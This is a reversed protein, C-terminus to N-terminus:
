GGTGAPIGAARLRGAWQRRALFVPPFVAALVLLGQLVQALYVPVGTSLLYQGGTRIVGFVFSVPLLLGPRDRAVLAALLGDTGFTDAFGAQIRHVQGTLLVGGSLGALAGSIVLASAAVAGVRMGFRRAAVANAGVARLRVGWASRDLALWLAALVVLALLAGSTVGFGPFAGPHPLRVGQPLLASQPLLGARGSPPTPEELLSQTSVAYDLAQTAVYALLLTGIVVNVRRWTYLAAAVGAWAAGGAASAAVACVLVLPGPGPMKLAVLAACGAGMVLQGTQGINFMGARVGVLTGLAVLLVPVSGDLTRGLPGPGDLSGRVLATVVTTPSHGVVGVLLASVVLAAALSAVYLVGLRTATAGPVGALLGRESGATLDTM